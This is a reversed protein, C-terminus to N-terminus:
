TSVNVYEILREVSQQQWTQCNGKVLNRQIQPCNIWIKKVEEQTSRRRSYASSEVDWSICTSLALM